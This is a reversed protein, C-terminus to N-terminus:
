QSIAISSFSQAIFTTTVVARTPGGPKSEITFNGNLRRLRERIGSLGFHGTDPGAHNSTDFGIGDDRVSMNLTADHYEGAIRIHKAKGHRVANSVLERAICLIAHASTDSFISRRVNFRISLKADGAVPNLTTRLAEDFNNAELANHRLDFLCRKLETRSAVLMNSAADLTLAAIQPSTKMLDKSAAIQFAVGELNQSLADHLEIALRTREDTRLDASIHAIQEKFLERSRRHIVKRLVAGWAAFGVITVLLIGIVISFKTSTWWPPLSIIRIDKANRVFLHCSKIRPIILNPNWTECEMLCIGTAEIGTGPNLDALEAAFSKDVNVSLSHGKCTLDIHLGAPEKAVHRIIGALTILKGNYLRYHLQDRGEKDRFFAEPTVRVPNGFPMSSIHPLKRYVARTLSLRFLDTEPYGVARVNMGPPPTSGSRLKVIVTDGLDTRIAFHQSGWRAIVIGSASRRGLLTLNKPAIRKSQDLPEYAYADDPPPTLVHINNTAPNAVVLHPGLFLRIGSTKDYYAGTISIKADLWNAANVGSQHRLAVPLFDRGEKIVLFDWEPDIQDRFTEVATGCITINKCPFTLKDLESLPIINTALTPCGTTCLIVSTILTPAHM